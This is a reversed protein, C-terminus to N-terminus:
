TADEATLADLLAGARAKIGLIIVNWIYDTPNALFGSVGAFLTAVAGQVVEPTVGTGAPGPPGPPGPPGVVPVGTGGGTVPNAKIYADVAARVQADTADRGNTGNTGNTGGSIPNTALYDRVATALQSATPAVPVLNPNAAISEM